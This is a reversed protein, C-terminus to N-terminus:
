GGDPEDDIRAGRDHAQDAAGATKPQDLRHAQDNNGEQEVEEHGDLGVPVHGLDAAEDGGM